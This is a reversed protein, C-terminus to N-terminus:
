GLKKYLTGTLVLIAVGSILILFPREILWPIESIIREFGFFTASVGLTVLLTFITPFKQLATKRYPDVLRGATKAAHEAREEIKEAAKVLTHKEENM